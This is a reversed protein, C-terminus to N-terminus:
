LAEEVTLDMLREWLRHVRLKEWRRGLEIALVLMAAIALHLATM